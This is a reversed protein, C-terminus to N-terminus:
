GPPAPLLGGVQQRYFYEYHQLLQRQHMSAPRLYSYCAFCCTAPFSRRTCCDRGVVCLLSVGRASFYAVRCCAALPPILMLLANLFILVRRVCPLFFAFRVYTHSGAGPFFTHFCTRLAHYWTYRVWGLPPLSANAKRRGAQQVVLLLHQRHGPHLGGELREARGGLAALRGRFLWCLM